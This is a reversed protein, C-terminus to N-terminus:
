IVSIMGHARVGGDRCWVARGLQQEFRALAHGNGGISGAWICRDHQATTQGAAYQAQMAITPLGRYVTNM